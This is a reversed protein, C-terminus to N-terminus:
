RRRGKLLAVLLDAIPAAMAEGNLRRQQQARLAQLELELLTLDDLDDPRRHFIHCVV